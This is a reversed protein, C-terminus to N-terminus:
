LLGNNLTAGPPELHRWKPAVEIIRRMDDSAGSMLNTAGSWHRWELFSCGMISDITRVSGMILGRWHFNQLCEVAFFQRWKSNGFLTRVFRGHKHPFVLLCVHRPIITQESVLDLPLDSAWHFWCALPLFLFFTTFHCDAFQAFRPANKHPSASEHLRSPCLPLTAIPPSQCCPRPFDHNLYYFYIPLTTIVYPSGL